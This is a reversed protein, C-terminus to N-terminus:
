YVFNDNTKTRNGYRPREYIGRPNVMKLHGTDFASTLANKFSESSTANRIEHPLINWCRATRPIFSYKYADISTQIHHVNDVFPLEIATEGRLAKFFLNNRAIYRRKQLPQLKLDNKLTSVSSTWNYDSKIFRAAKNQISELKDIHGQEYPDWCSSAYEMTPRVIATYAQKKINEPFRYFNRRLMNLSKSAKSTIKNVHKMWSLNYSLEIGLYPHDKVAELINGNLNYQYLNETKKKNTIELVKCKKANFNM